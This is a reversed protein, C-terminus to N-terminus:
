LPCVTRRANVSRRTTIQLSITGQGLRERLTGDYQASDFFPGFRPPVMDARVRSALPTTAPQRRALIARRAGELRVAQFFLYLAAMQPMQTACRSLPCDIRRSAGSRTMTLAVLADTLSSRFAPENIRWTRIEFCSVQGTISLFRGASFATRRHGLFCAPQAQRM